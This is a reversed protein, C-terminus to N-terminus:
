QWKDKFKDKIKKMKPAIILKCYAAEKNKNYYDKHHSEAKYFKEFKKIETVIPRKFDSKIAKIYKKIVDKQNDDNFLIISRYQTGVDEGQRNKTTPDHAAFFVELIEKLSIKKDDFKVKIVEAHGTSGTAVLKYNPNKVWGGAYGPIVKKVGKIKKFIAETCWFCGGGLVIEPKM